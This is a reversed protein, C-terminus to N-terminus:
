RAATQAGDTLRFRGEHVANETTGFCIALRAFVNNRFSEDPMLRELDLEARDDSIGLAEEEEIM